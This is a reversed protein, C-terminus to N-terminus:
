FRTHFQLGAGSRRSELHLLRGHLSRSCMVTPVLIAPHPQPGAGGGLGSCNLRASTGAQLLALVPAPSKMLRRM